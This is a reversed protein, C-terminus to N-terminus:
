RKIGLQSFVFAYSDAYQSITEDLATGLGHGSDASTRLLVPLGSVTASQLRATMKRSQYPNVRGDNEGTLMLVAPYATKDIVHHYPSYAYLAKFQAPDQVTGFETINFAGNPDLEVRLMDYDGVDSIVAKFLEPHQTFSAGMLLGGNSGGWIALRKSNTYGAKILYEAAATFDDFVNQKRTLNGAKHWDEGYEGGGRLNAVVYVGGRDFWVRRWVSFAPTMSIGYGGYGYLITPNNSYKRTGKRRLINLPVRTGDKSTAFARVVEIDDFRAPSTRRLPTLTVKASQANYRYWAAPTLFSQGQWLIDDGELPVVRNVASIAPIPLQGKAQGEHDFIRVQSPGGLIDVVYLRNVTPLIKEIAVGSEAVVQKAKLLDTEGPALRLVRGRLADKRALLWLEGDPALVAQTIGDEFRTVQKWQGDPGLLYHAYEGGDGNEVEALVYQGDDTSTLVTEAIRPFDKGIAYTDQDSQTGLKHFYVQQYFNADEKPRESGQPYRTYWFGTSDKKWAISGGATPYSVHALVDSLRRGTKVEWISVSGDESGNKSLSVAVYRGELSPVFFDITTTSKADLVNPDVLVHESSLKGDPDFTVLFPQQKPPQAKLAFLVGKRYAVDSFNVSSKLLAKLQREIPVRQPLQDLYSRTLRNQAASWAKVEPNKPDELWRYDDSVTVSQYADIIPRKPTTPLSQSNASLAMGLFCFVLATSVTCRSLFSM